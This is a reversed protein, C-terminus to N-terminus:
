IFLNATIKNDFLYKFPITKYGQIVHVGYVIAENLIINLMTITKYDEWFADAICMRRYATEM